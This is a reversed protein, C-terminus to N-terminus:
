LNRLIQAAKHGLVRWTGILGFVVTLVLAIVITALAVEPLLSWPLKMLQSVVYWSAIAGAALAFIAASLGMPVFAYVCAQVVVRRTVCLTMRVVAVQGRAWNGAAT